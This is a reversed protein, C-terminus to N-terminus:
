PKLDPKRRQMLAADILSQLRVADRVELALRIPLTVTAERLEALAGPRGILRVWDKETTVIQADCQRAQALVREADRANFPHHDAFTAREIIEAGMQELLAHFRGPNAIGALALVRRGSLPQATEDAAVSAELVPGEFRQRLDAAVDFPPAASGGPPMNVVIADALALQLDLPARLPGAPIVQGNGLGRRGDVLAIVLDKALAPNQLGDDMVIVTPPAIGADGAALAAGAVRDRAVIVPAHRALLLPEDGVDDATDLSPDVRHPGRKRGGYGRTLFVPREGMGTLLRAIHISLPTKGTGGATFNGVCIVPLGARVPTAQAIRRAAAWGWLRAAPALMGAPWVHESDYWWGPERVPM